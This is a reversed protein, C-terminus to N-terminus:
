ASLAYGLDSFNGIKPSEFHGTGCHACTRVLVLGSHHLRFTVDDVGAVAMHEDAYIKRSSVHRGTLALLRASIVECPPAGPGCLASTSASPRLRGVPPRTAALAAIGVTGNIQEQM